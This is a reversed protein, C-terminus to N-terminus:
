TSWERRYANVREELRVKQAKLRLSSLPLSFALEPQREWLHVVSSNESGVLPAEDVRMVDSQRHPSHHSVLRRVVEAHAWESFYLCSEANIVQLANLREVDARRASSSRSSSGRRNEVKYVAGDYLLLLIRPSLPLFIQLGRCYGGLNGWYRIGRCYSNYKFVPNDSTILRQRLETHLVHLHLDALAEVFQPLVKFQLSLAEHDLVPSFRSLGSGPLPDSDGFLHNDMKVMSDKINHRAVPTRLAQLGVFALLFAHQKTGLIPPEGSDCINRIVPAAAGELEALHDEIEDSPGYFRHIYCQDRLSANKVSSRSALHYLHIRRPSSQFGRLYFRPVYHQRRKSM